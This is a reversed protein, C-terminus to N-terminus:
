ASPRMPGVIERELAGSEYAWPSLTENSLRLFCAGGRVRAIQGVPAFSDGGGGVTFSFAPLANRAKEPTDGVLVDVNIQGSATALEMFVHQLLGLAGPHGLSFPGLLASSPMIVGDDVSQANISRRIYGDRGGYLVTPSNSGGVTHVTIATPEQDSPYTEPWFAKKGWDFWWHTTAGVIKPTIFINIGQNVVDYAMQVDYLGTNIDLLEAPLRERSLRQPVANPSPEFLYLGDTSLGVIVQEPTYCWAFKDIIGIDRSILDLSGGLTPDGRQISTSRFGAFICYDHSHPIIATVADGILASGSVRAPDYAFAAAETENAYLYNDPDGKKSMYVVHPFLPDGGWLLRDDWAAVITCGLPYQGPTVAVGTVDPVSGIPVLTLAGAGGVLSSDLVKPGRVVRHYLASGNRPPTPSLTLTAGAATINYIGIPATTGSIIEMRYDAIIEASTKGLATWSAVGSDTFTAGVNSGTGAGYKLLGYDAIYLKQLRPTSSLLIDSALSRVLSPVLGMNNNKLEVYVLGNASAVLSRPPMDAATVGTVAALTYRFTFNGITSKPGTSPCKLGFGVRGGAPSYGTSRYTITPITSSKVYCRITNTADISMRVAPIGALTPFSTSQAVQVGNIYLTTLYYINGAANTTHEVLMRVSAAPAPTVAAMDMLISLKGGVIMGVNGFSVERYKVTSILEDVFVATNLAGNATNIAYGQLVTPLGSTLTSELTWTGADTWNGGISAFEDLQSATSEAQLTRIVNLMRIETPISM